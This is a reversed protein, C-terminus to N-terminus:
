MRGTEGTTCRREWFTELNPGIWYVVDAQELRRAESPRLSYAHPSVFGKLLLSPEGVGEMVGSVLSHVPAITAVVSPAAQLVPSFLSFLLLFSRFSM